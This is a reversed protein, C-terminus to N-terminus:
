ISQADPASYQRIHQDPHLPDARQRVVEPYKGPQSNSEFHYNGLSIVAYGM